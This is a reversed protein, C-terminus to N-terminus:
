TKLPQSFTVVCLWSYRRLYPIKRFIFEDLSSLFCTIKPFFAGAISFLGFHVIEVQNFYKSAVDIDSLFLPHEDRTRLKPTIKRYLNIFFNHGLPEFFVASGTSRLVRSIEPYARDLDLHHLIGSGFIFDFSESEYSLSEADMVRFNINKKQANAELKAKKIAFDSVDIAHLKHALDAIAFIRSGPGCGYELVVSNRSYKKIADHYYDSAIELADYYKNLYARRNDAYAENHFKKERLVRNKM